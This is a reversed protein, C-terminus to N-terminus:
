LPSMVLIRYMGIPRDLPPAILGVGQRFQGIPQKGSVHLGVKKHFLREAGAPIADHEVLQAQRQRSRV